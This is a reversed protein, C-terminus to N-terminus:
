STKVSLNNRVDKVGTVSRAIATAARRAADDNVFGSLHVVGNMTEVNIQHAKTDRSKILAAKVKATLTADDLYEGPTQSEGRVSLNNQVKMVGEVGTAVITAQSKESASGVFGNLQVTGRHVDVEIQRAKTVSDAVLAAKVRGLLAADDVQEGPARQTRTTSCAVASTMAVGAVMAILVRKFSM